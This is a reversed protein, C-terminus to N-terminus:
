EGKQAKLGLEYFYKAISTFGEHNMSLLSKEDWGLNFRPNWIKDIEKELNVEKVEINDIFSRFNKLEEIKPRIERATGWIEYRALEEYEKEYKHLREEIEAAVKDKDILKM